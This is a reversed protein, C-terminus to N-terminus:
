PRWTGATSRSARQGVGPGSPETRSLFDHGSSGRWWANREHIEQRKLRLRMENRPLACCALRSVEVMPIRTCAAEAVVEAKDVDGILPLQDRERDDLMRPRTDGAGKTAAITSQPPVHTRAFMRSTFGSGASSDNPM